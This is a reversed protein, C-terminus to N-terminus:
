NAAKAEEADAVQQKEEESNVMEINLCLSRLEKVMVNFSEPLGSDFNSDGRVISEYIKIRGTVDDSKM